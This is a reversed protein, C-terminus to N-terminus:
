KREKLENRERERRTRWKVRWKRGGYILFLDCANNDAGSAFSTNKGHM